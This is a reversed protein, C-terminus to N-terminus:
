KLWWNLQADAATYLSDLETSCRYIIFVWEDAYYLYLLIGGENTFRQELPGLSNYKRQLEDYTM